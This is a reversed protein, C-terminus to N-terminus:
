RWGCTQHSEWRLFDNLDHGLNYGMLVFDQHDGHGLFTLDIMPSQPPSWMESDRDSSCDTESRRMSMSSRVQCGPQDRLLTPSGAAEEDVFGRQLDRAVPISLELDPCTAYPPASSIGTTRASSHVMNALGAPASQRARVFRGASEFGFDDFWATIDDFEDDDTRRTLDSGGSVLDGAGGLIAVQFATWDLTKDPMIDACLISEPKPIRIRGHSFTPVNITCPTSHLFIFEADESPASRHTPRFHGKSLHHPPQLPLTPVTADAALTTAVGPSALRAKLNQRHFDDIKARSSEHVNTTPLTDPSPIGRCWHKSRPRAPVPRRSIIEDAEIKGLLHWKIMVTVNNLTKRAAFDGTPWKAPKSPKHGVILASAAPMPVISSSAM